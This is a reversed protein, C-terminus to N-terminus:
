KEMEDIRDQVLKYVADEDPSIWYMPDDESYYDAYGNDVENCATQVADDIDYGQKYYSMAKDFAEDNAVEQLYEEDYEEEDYSDDVMDDLDPEGYAIDDNVWIDTKITVTYGNDTKKIKADLPQLFYRDYHNDKLQESDYWKGRFKEYGLSNLFKIAGKEDAFDYTEIQEKFDELLENSEQIIDIM